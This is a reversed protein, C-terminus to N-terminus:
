DRYRIRVEAMVAVGTLRVVRNTPVPEPGRRKRRVSGMIPTVDTEIRVDPPADITVEGMVAIINITTTGEPVITDRLDIHVTGMVAVAAASSGQLWNGDLRQESMVAVIRRTDGTAPAGPSGAGAPRYGDGSRVAPLQYQRPLDRLLDRLTQEDRAANALDVRAEFEELPLVDESYCRTLSDITEDRRKEMDRPSRYDGAPSRDDHM